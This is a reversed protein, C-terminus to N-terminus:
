NLDLRVLIPAHDSKTIPLHQVTVNPFMNIWETTSLARDLRAGKFTESDKGRMWTFTPGKYGSDVLSEEFMWDIIGKCRRQNFTSPNSVEEMNTVANFDGVALWENHLNLRESRLDKWLRERISPEPSTYVFIINWVKNNNRVETVVFQPHTRIIQIDLVEDWFVWIGGSFGIAEVRIWNSYKLKKCVRDTNEGSTKTEFLALISTKQTNILSRAARMFEKSAARQCNWALIIMSFLFSLSSGFVVLGLCQLAVSM